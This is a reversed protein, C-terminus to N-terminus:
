AMMQSKLCASIRGKARGMGLGRVDCVDSAMQKLQVHPTSIPLPLWGEECRLHFSRGGTVALQSSNYSTGFLSLRPHKGSLFTVDALSHCPTQGFWAIHRWVHPQAPLLPQRQQFDFTPLVETRHDDQTSPEHQSSVQSQLEIEVKNAFHIFSQFNRCCTAEPLSVATHTHTYM